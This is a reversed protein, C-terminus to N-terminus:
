NCVRGSGTDPRVNEPLSGYEFAYVYSFSDEASVNSVLYGLSESASVACADLKSLDTLAVMYDQSGDSYVVVLVQDTGLTMSKFDEGVFAVNSVDLGTNDMILQLVSEDPLGATAMVEATAVGVEVPPTVLPGVTPMRNLTPPPEMNSDPQRTEPNTCAALLIVLILVLAFSFKKLSM